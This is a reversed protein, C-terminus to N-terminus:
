KFYNIVDEFAGKGGTANRQIRKGGTLIDKSESELHLRGGDEVHFYFWLEGPWAQLCDFNDNTGKTSVGDKSLMYNFEGELCIPSM